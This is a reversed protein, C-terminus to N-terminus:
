VACTVLRFHFWISSGHLCLHCLAVRVCCSNLLASPLFLGCWEECFVASPVNSAQYFVLSVCVECEFNPQCGSFDIGISCLWLSSAEIMSVVVQCRLHDIILVLVLMFFVSLRFPVFHGVLFVEACSSTTRTCCPVFVWVHWSFQAFQTFVGEVKSADFCCGCCNFDHSLTAVNQVFFFLM